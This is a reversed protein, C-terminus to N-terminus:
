INYKYQMLMYLHSIAKNILWGTEGLLQLLGGGWSYFIHIVLNTLTADINYFLLNGEM